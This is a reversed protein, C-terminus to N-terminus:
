EGLGRFWTPIKIYRFQDIPQASTLRMAGNKIAWKFGRRKGARFIAKVGRRQWVDFTDFAM